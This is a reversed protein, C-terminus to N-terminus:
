KNQVAWTLQILPKLMSIARASSWLEFELVWVSHSVVM